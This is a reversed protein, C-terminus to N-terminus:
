TGHNCRAQFSGADIPLNTALGAGAIVSRCPDFYAGRIHLPYLLQKGADRQRTKMTMAQISTAINGHEMPHLGDIKASVTNIGVGM